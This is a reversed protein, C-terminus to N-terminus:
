FITLPTPIFKYVSSAGYFGSSSPPTSSNLRFVQTQTVGDWTPLIQLYIPPTTNPVFANIDNGGTTILTHSGTMTGQSFNVYSYQTTENSSTNYGKRLYNANLDTFHLHVVM